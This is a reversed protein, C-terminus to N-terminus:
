SGPDEGGGAFIRFFDDRDNLRPFPEAPMPVDLFECLPEWGEQPAWVLLREAPLEQRVEAVHEDYREVLERRSGTRDRFSRQVIVEHLMAGTEDDEGPHEFPIGNRITAQFSDYWDDAPRETLLV